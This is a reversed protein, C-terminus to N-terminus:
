FGANRERLRKRFDDLEARGNVGAKDADKVWEEYAATTAKTWAAKQVDNPATIKHGLALLDKRGESDWDDWEKVIRRAWESTCHSDIAAKADGSLAM